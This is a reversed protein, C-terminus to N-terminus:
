HRNEKLIERSKIKGKIFYSFYLRNTDVVRRMLRRSRLVEMQDNVFAASSSGAGSLTTLEALGAMEGSAQKEDQLLIKANINYVQQAYRLYVFAIFLCAIVSFVFWKWYYAYQEFLQKLNIEEEESEKLQPYPSNKM